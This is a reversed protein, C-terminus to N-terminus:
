KKGCCCYILVCIFIFGASGGVVGGIYVTRYNTEVPEECCTRDNNYLTGCCGFDCLRYRNIYDDYCTYKAVTLCVSTLLVVFSLLSIIGM